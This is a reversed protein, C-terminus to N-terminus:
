TPHLELKAIGEGQKHPNKKDSEQYEGETLPDSIVSSMLPPRTSHTM